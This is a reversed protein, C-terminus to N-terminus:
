VFEVRAVHHRMEAAGIPRAGSGVLPGAVVAGLEGCLALRGGLRHEVLVFGFLAGLAVAGADGTWRATAFPPLPREIEIREPALPWGMRGERPSSGRTWTKASM